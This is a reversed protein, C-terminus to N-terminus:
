KLQSLLLRAAPERQALQVLGNRGGAAYAAAASLLAKLEAASGEGLRCYAGKSLEAIERFSAAAAPDDGEQFMFAAVGCTRLKRALAALDQATEEMSDGVYVLTSAEGSQGARYTHSLVYGIQTLGGVCAVGRMQAALDEPKRSWRSAYFESGRFYVLQVKLAPAFASFMSAQVAVAKDWTPQRSATADMAFILGRRAAALGEASAVAGLLERVRADDWPMAGDRQSQSNEAAAAPTVAKGGQLSTLWGRIGNEKGM